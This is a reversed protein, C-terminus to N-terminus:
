IGFKILPLIDDRHGVVEEDWKNVIYFCLNLVVFCCTHCSSMFCLISWAGVVLVLVVIVLQMYVSKEFYCDKYISPWWGYVVAFVVVAAYWGTGMVEVTSWSSEASIVDASKGCGCCCNVLLKSSSSFPVLSLRTPLDLTEAISSSCSVSSCKSPSWNKGCCDVGGGGSKHVRDKTIIDM